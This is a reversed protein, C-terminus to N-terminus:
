LRRGVAFSALARLGISSRDLLSLAQEAAAIEDLAAQRAGDLGLKEPYTNKGAASDKGTAKGATDPSATVDLLDDAIQFALGLHQGYSSIAALTAKDAGGVIAGMRCAASILAATKRHHIDRLQELSLTQGEAAIDLTQGGIMGAPGAARALERTLDAAIQPTGAYETALLEFAMAIMADGALIALAEGYVKHNTPRGRRLDDDDMAPLDDHVLSFTHVLEVAAAAPVPSLSHDIHRSHDSAVAFAELVLAPRLRKGGSLLSYEIAEILRPPADSFAAVHPLRQSLYQSTIDAHKQLLTSADSM